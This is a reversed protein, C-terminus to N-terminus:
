LDCYNLPGERRGTYEIKFGHISFTNIINLGESM